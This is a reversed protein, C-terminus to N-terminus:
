RQNESGSGGGGCGELTIRARPYPSVARTLDEPLSARQTDVSKGANKCTSTPTSTPTDLHEGRNHCTCVRRRPIPHRLQRDERRPTVLLMLPDAFSVGGTLRPLGTPRSTVPEAFGETGRNGHDGRPDFQSTTAAM